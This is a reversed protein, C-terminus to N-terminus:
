QKKRLDSYEEDKDIIWNRGIKIATKFTGRICKYRVSSCDKKHIKAYESISIFNMKNENM